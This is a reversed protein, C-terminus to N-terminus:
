EGIAPADGSVAMSLFRVVDANAEPVSFAVFHGDQGAPPQYQRFGLTAGAHNGALPPDVVGLGLPELEPTVQTFGGALVYVSLTSPPSFTDDLGYTQFTHRAGHGRLPEAAVFRAFNLPDAPDIWQQLLSLVPHYEPPFPWEDIRVDALLTPLIATLDVPKTKTLLSRQL